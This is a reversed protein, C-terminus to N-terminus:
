APGQRRGDVIVSGLRGARESGLGRTEVQDRGRPGPTGDGKIILVRGGLVGGMRDGVGLLLEEGEGRTQGVCHWASHNVRLCPLM